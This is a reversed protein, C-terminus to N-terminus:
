HEALGHAFQERNFLQLIDQDVVVRLIVVSRADAYDRCAPALLYDIGLLHLGPFFNLGSVHEEHEYYHGQDHIGIIRALEKEAYYCSRQYKQRQTVHQWFLVSQNGLQQHVIGPLLLRRVHIGGARVGAGGAALIGMVREGRVM